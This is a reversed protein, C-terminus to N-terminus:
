PYRDETTAAEAFEVEGPLAADERCYVHENTDDDKGPDDNHDDGDDDVGEDSAEDADIYPAFMYELVMTETEARMTIPIISGALITITPIKFAGLMKAAKALNKASFLGCELGDPAGDYSVLPISAGCEAAEDAAALHM